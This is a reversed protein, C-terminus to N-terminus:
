EDSEKNKSNTKKPKKIPKINIPESAVTKTEITRSNLQNNLKMVEILDKRLEKERVLAEELEKQTTHLKNDLNSINNNLIEIDEGLKTITVCNERISEQLAEIEDNKQKIMNKGFEEGKERALRERRRSSFLTIYKDGKYSIDGADLWGMEVVEEEKLKKELEVVKALTPFKNIIKSKLNKM